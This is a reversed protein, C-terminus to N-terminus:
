CIGTLVLLGPRFRDFGWSLEVPNALKSRPKELPSIKSRSRQLVDKYIPAGAPPLRAQGRRCEAERKAPQAASGLHFLIASGPRAGRGAGARPPAGARTPQRPGGRSLAARRRHAPRPRHGSLWRSRPPSPTINMYTPKSIQIYIFIVIHIDIYMYRDIDIYATLLALAIGQASGVPSPPTIYMYTPKSMQIYIEIDIYRYVYRYMDIDIDIYKPITLLALAIGQASGVPPPPTIYMYTPKSM